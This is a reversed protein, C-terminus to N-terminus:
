PCPGWAGVLELIDSVDVIGDGNVDAPGGTEGWAGVVALIDTVDVMGDGNVDGTCSSECFSRSISIGDVAAEIVSGANLDGCIFRVEVTGSGALTHEVDYWGGSSEAVPGVTELNTWAGGNLSIDVYFYDNNPDAGNCNAGNSYWRSYGLIAGDSYTMVPSTLTTSGGDVDEDNGNGTVYCMGSGDADTPNDCRAGGNAPTVREWNGTSADAAVTWGMDSQFDDEFTLESGSYAMANWTNNPAGAPSVVTDGDASNVSVYWDVSAGCDFAPFTADYSAGLPAANWGSGTNWNLTGDTPTSTGDTVDIAVVTGGNPDVLSPRGNPYDIVIAPDTECGNGPGDVLLSGSGVSGSDWGGVRILYYAGQSVNFTTLSSYGGCGSGDGNCAVQTMSGCSGEYVVIDSDCVM